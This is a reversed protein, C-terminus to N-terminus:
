VSLEGSSAGPEGVMVRSALVRSEEGDVHSKSRGQGRVRGQVEVDAGRESLGGGGRYGM